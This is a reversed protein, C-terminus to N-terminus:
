GTKREVRASDGKPSVSSNIPLHKETKLPNVNFKPKENKEFAFQIEIKESFAKEYFVALGVEIDSYNAADYKHWLTAVHGEKNRFVKAIELAKIIKRKEDPSCNTFIPTKPLQHILQNFTFTNNADFEDRLVEQISYPPKDSRKCKPTNICYGSNLFFSKLLLECGVGIFLRKQVNRLLLRFTKVSNIDKTKLTVAKQLYYESILKFVHYDDKTFFKAYQEKIESELSMQVKNLRVM